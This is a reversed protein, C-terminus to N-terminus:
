ATSVFYIQGPDIVIYTEKEDRQYRDSPTIRDYQTMVAANGM